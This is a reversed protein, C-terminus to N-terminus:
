RERFFSGSWHDLLLIPEQRQFSNGCDDFANTYIPKSVLRVGLGRFQDCPSEQNDVEVTWWRDKSFLSSSFTKRYKKHEAMLLDLFNKDKVTKLLRLKFKVSFLHPFTNLGRYEQNIQLWIEQITVSSFSRSHSALFCPLCDSLHTSSCPAWESLICIAM